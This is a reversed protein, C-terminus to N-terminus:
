SAGTIRESAVRRETDRPPDAKLREEPEDNVVLADPAGDGGGSKTWAREVNRLFKVLNRLRLPNDIAVQVLPLIQREVEALKAVGANTIQVSKGNLTVSGAVELEKVVERAYNWSLGIQRCLVKLMIGQPEKSVVFIILGHLFTFKDDFGPLTSCVKMYRGLAVSTNLFDDLTVEQDSGIHRKAM